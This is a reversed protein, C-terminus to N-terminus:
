SSPQRYLSYTINHEGVFRIVVGEDEISVGKGIQELGKVVMIKHSPVITIQGAEPKSCSIIPITSSSEFGLVLKGFLSVISAILYAVGRAQLNELPVENM